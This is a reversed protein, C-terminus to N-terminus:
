YLSGTGVSALVDATIFDANIDGFLQVTPPLPTTSQYQSFFAHNLLQAPTPLITISPDSTELVGTLHCFFGKCVCMCVCVCIYIYVYIYMYIYIYIYIYWPPPTLLMM